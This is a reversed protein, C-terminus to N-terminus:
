NVRSFTYHNTYQIEEGNYFLVDTELVLYDESLMKITANQRGFFSFILTNTTELPEANVEINLEGGLTKVVDWTGTEVINPDSVNCRLLGESISITKQQDHNFSIVNDVFCDESSVLIIGEPWVYEYLLTSEIKWSINEGEKGALLERTHKIEDFPKQEDSCSAFVILMSAIIYNHIKM